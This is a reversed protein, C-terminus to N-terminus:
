FAHITADDLVPVDPQVGSRERLPFLWQIFDHNYELEEFSMAWVDEIRRGAFDTGNGFYFDILKASMASEAPHDFLSACRGAPHQAAVGVEVAREDFIGVEARRRDVGAGM